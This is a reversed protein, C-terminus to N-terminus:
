SLYGNEQYWRFLMQCEQEFSHRPKFGLERQARSIDFIRHKIFFDARRRHIPPEIGLPLCVTEVLDGLLQLPLVPVRFPLVSVGAHQAICKYVYDLQVPREGAILYARGVAEDRTAALLFSEVLDHVWIFHCWTKGTGIIPLKRHAVGRFLKKFRLDGDGWIMAPRITSWRLGTKGAFEELLREAELKSQQYTDSPHFPASEDIPDSSLGGHVGNTSCYIFRECNEASELLNKTGGVNIDFYVQDPFKAERFIAGVHFIIDVDKAAKAVSDRVRLDGAIIKAGLQQLRIAADSRENRVLLTVDCGDDLLRKALHGGVFGTAGTVLCRKNNIISSVGLGM